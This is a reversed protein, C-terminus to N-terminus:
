QGNFSVGDQRIATRRAIYPAHANAYRVAYYGFYSWRRATVYGEPLVLQDERAKDIDVDDSELLRFNKALQTLSGEVNKVLPVDLMSNVNDVSELAYIEDRLQGVLEITEPAFLEGEPTITVFLFERVGYRKVVNIYRRYDEDNELLLSDSSADLRFHVIQSGFGLLILFLLALMARPHKLVTSEYINAILNTM